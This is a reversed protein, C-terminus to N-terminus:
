PRRARRPRHIRHGLHPQEACLPKKLGARGFPNRGHPPLYPAVYVENLVKHRNKLWRIDLIVAAALMLGLVMQNTGTGYGLRILGNNMVLVIIAGMLAKPISGRGGGLSNGGVVAATIALIELNLGTGPGAGSLRCAILFGAVGSCLGSVVYSMFVTQRVRIGSDDAGLTALRRGRPHALRAALPDARRPVPHRAGRCEGVPISVGHIDGDGIFDWVDSSADSMQIASGYNIVLIDYIARGIVLMVLTTLFARLRMYGILYGNM